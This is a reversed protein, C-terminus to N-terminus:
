FGEVGLDEFEAELNTYYRSVFTILGLGTDTLYFYTDYDSLTRHEISEKLEEIWTDDDDGEWYWLCHFAGSDLLMEPTCDEGVVDELYVTEGTRMDLTIGTEWDNPHNAERFSNYEYIRMSLYREDERTIMYYRNIDTYVEESPVLLMDEGEYEYNYFFACKLKENIVDEMEKKGNYLTVQPYQININIDVREDRYSYTKLYVYYDLEWNVGQTALPNYIRRDYQTPGSESTYRIPVAIDADRAIVVEYVYNELLDAVYSSAEMEAFFHDKSFVPEYQSAFVYWDAEEDYEFTLEERWRSGEGELLIDCSFYNGDMEEYSSYYSGDIWFSGEESEVPGFYAQYSGEIEYRRFGEQIYMAMQQYADPLESFATASGSEQEDTGPVAEALEERPSEATEEGASGRESEVPAEGAGYIGRCGSLMVCLLIGLAIGKKYRKKLIEKNKRM